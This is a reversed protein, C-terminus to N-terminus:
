RRDRPPPREDWELGAMPDAPDKLRLNDVLRAMLYPNHGCTIRGMYAIQVEGEGPLDVTVSGYHARYPNRNLADFKDVAEYERAAYLVELLLKM